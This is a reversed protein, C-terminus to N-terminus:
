RFEEGARPRPGALPQHLPIEAQSSRVILDAAADVDKLIDSASIRLVKYGNERLFADRNADRVPRESRNHAEGDIEIVLRAKSCYFDAVYPGIPSERRFKIGGAKGRLRQWLLVEPLTIERRLKRAIYTEPRRLEPSGGGGRPARDGEGHRPPNAAAAM